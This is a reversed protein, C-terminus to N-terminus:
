NDEDLSEYSEVISAAEDAISTRVPAAVAEKAPERGAQEEKKKAIRESVRAFVADPDVALAKAEEIAKVRNKIAELQEIGLVLGDQLNEVELETLEQIPRRLGPLEILSKKEDYLVGWTAAYSFSLARGNKLNAIVQKQLTPTLYKSIHGAAGRLEATADKTKLRATEAKRKLESEAVFGHLWDKLKEIRSSITIAPNVDKTVTAAELIASAQSLKWHNDRVAREAWDYDTVKLLRSASTESVGLASAIRTTPVKLSRLKKVANLRESANLKLQHDNDALTRSFIDREFDEESEGTGPKVVFCHIGTELDWGALSGKVALAMAAFARQGGVVVGSQLVTLAKTQGERALSEALPTLKGDDLSATERIKFRQDTRLDKFPIIRYDIECRSERQVEKKEAM